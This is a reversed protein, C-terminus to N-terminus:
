RKQRLVLKTPRVEDGVFDKKISSIYPRTERYYKTILLGSFIRSAVSM